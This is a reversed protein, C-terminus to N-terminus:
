KENKRIVVLYSGRCSNIFQALVTSILFTVKNRSWNGFYFTWEIHMGSISDFSELSVDRFIKKLASPPYPKIHGFTNWISNPMPSTIIIIGGLRLVRKMENLMKYAELPFLHEIVNSCNIVDFYKNDFSLNTVDSEKVLLGDSCLQTVLTKNVDVGYIREKDRRLLKGEGCGVDLIIGKSLFTEYVPSGKSFWHKIFSFYYSM